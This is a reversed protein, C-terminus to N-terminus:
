AADKLLLRELIGRYLAALPELDAIAIRENLKHITANVPGVEVVEPCVECIFRGDSTGGSCSIEPTIGCVERVADSAVAVLRGRPTLYPRGSATWELDYELGHRRLVTELRASLSERTSATSYRFNFALELTGPIVNTAGTGAHINSAQWSTPPFYENGEDWSLASLEAIAPAVRHIPNLALHPYAIHGQIGRVTLTGSLTGRRGNKIMDGLRETSSPEGVICYDLREGNAQLRDVVRTTGDTAPGEEDSTILLAISGPHNRRAAVFREIAVVFAALSSKMDAAGRGYLFGDRVTPAFADSTWADLPGTPVVDTHGAFCVAPRVTGRRAWLNTVGNSVLTECRFGARTLRTKLIEQCGADDPTQSRRAILKCALDFTATPGM